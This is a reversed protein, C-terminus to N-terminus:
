VAAEKGKGPVLFAVALSLLKGGLLSLLFIPITLCLFLLPYAQPRHWNPVLRYLSADLLHSLLYGGYCGGAAWALLKGTKPGISVRYLGAFLCLVMLSIWLDGFEQTFADSITGDTSLVTATGLGIAIALAAGLGAWPSIRPQLRRVVAGLVYYTLPYLPRWYSPALDLATAGPLATVFLMTGALWLLQRKGTLRELALNVVPILLTLGVYMGVYWGYSVASFRFLKSIWLSLSQPEGLLFHRIPISIASALLYGLLVPGLAAYSAKSVPKGSQFYGTLMLFLGICSVSLWRVSGALVMWLGTQPWQYYGNYLFSHFTVVGLLALCRVLDPGPERKQM